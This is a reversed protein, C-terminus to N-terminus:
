GKKSRTSSTSKKAVKKSPSVAEDLTKEALDWDAVSLKPAKKPATKPALTPTAKPAVKPAVPAEVKPAAKPAAKPATNVAAKAARKKKIWPAVM